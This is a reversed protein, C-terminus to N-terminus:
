DLGFTLDSLYKKEQELIDNMVSEDGSAVAKQKAKRTDNYINIWEPKDEFLDAIEMLYEDSIEAFYDIIQQKDDQELSSDQVKAKIREYNSM